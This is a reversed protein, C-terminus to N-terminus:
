RWTSVPTFSVFADSPNPNLFTKPMTIIEILPIILDHLNIPLRFVEPHSSTILIVFRSLSLLIITARRFPCDHQYHEHLGLDHKLM